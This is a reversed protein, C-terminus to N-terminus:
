SRQNILELKKFILEGITYEDSDRLHTWILYYRSLLFEGRCAKKLDKYSRLVERDKSLVLIIHKNKM